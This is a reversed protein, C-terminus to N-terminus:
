APVPAAGFCHEAWAATGRAVADDGLKAVVVKFSKAYPPAARARAAEEVGHVFLEPMAEVLGGGLVVIDPALLNVTDGVVQGILRAARQIIREVSKDGAKIAAALVGSRIKGLDTEAHQYLYPAEGRFAAMAAAASIALRSAETELCGIRGCGCQLGSPNVQMHGFEFASLTRGRIIVGDYVCGGGIGTGPFVGILCRASKGAGFRYEGYVGADVDNLVVAPCDFEKQLIEQVHVNKWGLNASDVIVGRELDVTGPCGIGIGRLQQPSRGAERLADHITEIVREMGPRAGEAGKTKRRKRGLPRFQEDFVTAMMKTGGLDFGVWCRDPQTSDM